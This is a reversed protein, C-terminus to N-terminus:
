ALAERKLFAGMVTQIDEEEEKLVVKDELVHHYAGVLLVVENRYDIPVAFALVVLSMQMRELEVELKKTHIRGEVPIHPPVVVHPAVAEEVLPHHHYDLTEVLPANDVVVM